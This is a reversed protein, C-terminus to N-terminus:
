SKAAWSTCIVAEALRDAGMERAEPFVELLAGRM